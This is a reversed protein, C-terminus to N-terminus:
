KKCGNQLGFFIRDSFDIQDTVDDGLDYSADLFVAHFGPQSM